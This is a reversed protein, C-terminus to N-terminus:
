FGCMNSTAFLCCGALFNEMDSVWCWSPDRYGDTLVTVFYDDRTTVRVGFGVRDTQTDLWLVGIDCSM